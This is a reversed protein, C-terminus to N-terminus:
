PAHIPLADIRAEIRALEERYEASDIDRYRAAFAADDMLPPIGEFRVIVDNEAGIRAVLDPWGALPERMLRDSLRIGSNNAALDTFDFGGAGSIRDYLEKFEGVSVSFGRNSAAQLAAATLFHRRSDIRGNLTVAACSLDDFGPGADVDFALGGVIMAFDRAGCVKALGLIASTYRDALTEPTAEAMVEALMFQLYPLFSGEQSLRGDRMARLFREEYAAVDAAGPLEQGRMTGFVRRMVGNKGMEDLALVVRLGDPGVEMQRPAALIRGGTGDGLVLDGGVRALWLALQPPLDVQGVRVRDLRLGDEFAPVRADVNVWRRGGVWPVPVSATLDLGGAQLAFDGRAGPVFRGGLRAAGELQALDIALPADPATDPALVGRVDHALRRVAAVDEPSPPATAPLIPQDDLVAVHVFVALAVALGLCAVILRRVWRLM